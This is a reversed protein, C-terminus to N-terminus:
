LRVAQRIGMTQLTAREIFLREISTAAKNWGREVCLEMAIWPCCVPQLLGMLREHDEHASIALALSLEFPYGQGVQKHRSWRVMRLILEPDTRTRLDTWVKIDEPNSLPWLFEAARLHGNLAAIALAKSSHAKPDVQDQLRWLTALDGSRAAHIFQEQLNTM